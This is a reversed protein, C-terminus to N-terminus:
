SSSLGSRFFLIRSVDRPSHNGREGGKFQGHIYLFDAPFEVILIGTPCFFHRDPYVAQKEPVEGGNRDSHRMKPEM